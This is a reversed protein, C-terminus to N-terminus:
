FTNAKKCSTIVYPGSWMADFKSHRGLKAREANWKLVLDGKSYVRAIAKKDFSKKVQQQHVELTHM